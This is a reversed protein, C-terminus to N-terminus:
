VQHHTEYTLVQTSVRPYLINSVRETELLGQLGSQSVKTTAMWYADEWEEKTEWRGWVCGGFQEQNDKHIKKWRTIDWGAKQVIRGASAYQYITGEATEIRIYSPEAGDQYPNFLPEPPVNAHLHINTQVDEAISDHQNAHLTVDTPVPDLTCDLTWHVDSLYATIWQNVVAHGRVMMPFYVKMRYVDMSMPGDMGMLVWSNNIMSSRM